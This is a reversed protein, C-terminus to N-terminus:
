GKLQSALEAHRARWEPLKAVVAPTMAVEGADIRALKKTLGAFEDAPNVPTSPLDILLSNLLGARIEANEDSEELTDLAALVELDVRQRSPMSAIAIARCGQRLRTPEKDAPLQALGVIRGTSSEFITFTQIM